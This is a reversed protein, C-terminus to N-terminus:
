PDLLNNQRQHLNQCNHITTDLIMQSRVQTKSILRSKRQQQHKPRSFLSECILRIAFLNSGMMLRSLLKAEPDTLFLLHIRTTGLESNIKRRNSCLFKIAVTSQTRSQAKRRNDAYDKGRQKYEADRDRTTLDTDLTESFEPLKTRIERRFMRKAPSV